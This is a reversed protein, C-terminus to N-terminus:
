IVDDRILPGEYVTTYEFSLVETPQNKVIPKEIPKEAEIIEETKEKSRLLNCVTIILGTIFSVVLICCFIILVIEM